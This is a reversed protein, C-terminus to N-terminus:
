TESKRKNIILLAILIGVLAGSLDILLDTILGARGPVFLQIAEDIVAVILTHMFAILYYVKFQKKHYLFTTVLGLLLFEMFHAAKRVLLSFTEYNFFGKFIPYIFNAVFGSQSSSVSGPLLSNIWIILNLIIVLILLSQKKM